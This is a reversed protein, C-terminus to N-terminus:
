FSNFLILSLSKYISLPVIHKEIISLLHISLKLPLKILCGTSVASTKLRSFISAVFLKNKLCHLMRYATMKRTFLPQKLPQKLQKAGNLLFADLIPSRKESPLLIFGDKLNYVLFDINIQVISHKTFQLFRTHTPILTIKNIILSYINARIFFLIYYIIAYILM